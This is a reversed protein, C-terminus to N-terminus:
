QCFQFNMNGIQSFLIHILQNATNHAKLGAAQGVIVVDELIYRCPKIRYRIITVLIHSIENGVTLRCSIGLLTDSNTTTVNILCDNICSLCAKFTQSFNRGYM